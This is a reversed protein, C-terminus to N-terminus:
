EMCTMQMKNAKLKSNSVEIEDNHDYQGHEYHGSLVAVMVILDMLMLVMRVKTSGDGRAGGQLHLVAPRPGSWQAKRFKM